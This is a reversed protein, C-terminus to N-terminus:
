VADPDLDVDGVPPAEELPDLIGRLFADLDVPAGADVQEVHARLLALADADSLAYDRVFANLTGMEPPSAARPAVLRAYAAFGGAVARRHHLYQALLTIRAVVDAPTGAADVLGEIAAAATAANQDTKGSM